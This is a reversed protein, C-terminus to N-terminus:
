IKTKKIEVLKGLFYWALFKTDIVQDKPVKLFLFYFVNFDFCM